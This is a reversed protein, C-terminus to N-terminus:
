PESERVLQLRSVTEQYDAHNLWETWGHAYIVCGGRKDYPAFAVVTGPPDSQKRGPVLTYHAWSDINSAAPSHHLRPSLLLSQDFDETASALQLWEGPYHGEHRIAYARLCMALQHARGIFGNRMGTQLRDAVLSAIAFLALALAVACCRWRRQRATM